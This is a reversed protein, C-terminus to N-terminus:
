LLANVSFYNNLGELAIRVQELTDAELPVVVVGEEGEPNELTNLQSELMSAKFFHGQRQGIREELLRKPGNIWVFYTSLTNVHAEESHEPVSLKSFPIKMKGRLIDRYYRKLASCTIVVGNRGECSGRLRNEEVKAEATTRILALWPERDADTLPVGSSMKDVNTKPHLDDGEVYPM